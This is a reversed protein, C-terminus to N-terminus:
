RSVERITNAHVACVPQGNANSEGGRNSTTHHRILGHVSPVPAGNRGEIGGRLRAGHPRTESSRYWVQGDDQEGNFGVPSVGVGFAEQDEFASVHPEPGVPRELGDHDLDTPIVPIDAHVPEFVTADNPVGHLMVGPVERCGPEPLADM